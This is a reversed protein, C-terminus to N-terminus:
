SQPIGGISKERAEFLKRVADQGAIWKEAEADLRGLEEKKALTEKALADKRKVLELRQMELEQRALREDEIRAVTLDHESADVQEAHRSLYEEESVMPLQRYRHSREENAEIRATDNILFSKYKSM